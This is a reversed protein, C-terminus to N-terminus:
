RMFILVPWALAYVSEWSVHTCWEWFTMTPWAKWAVAFLYVSYGAMYLWALGLYLWRWITGSPM